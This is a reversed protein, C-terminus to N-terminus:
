TAPTEGHNKWKRKSWDTNSRSGPAVSLLWIQKILYIVVGILKGEDSSRENNNYNGSIGTILWILPM